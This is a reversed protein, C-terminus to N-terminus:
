TLSGDICLSSSRWTAPPRPSAQDFRWQSVSGVSRWMLFDGRDVVEYLDDPGEILQSGVCYDNYATGPQLAGPSYGGMPNRVAGASRVTSHRDPAPTRSWRAVAFGDAHCFFEWGGAVVTGAQPYRTGAWLCHTDGMDAHAPASVSVLGLMTAAALLAASAYRRLSRRLPHASPTAITAM